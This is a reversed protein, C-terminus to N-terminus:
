LGGNAVAKALLEQLWAYQEAQILAQYGAASKLLTLKDAYQKANASTFLKSRQATLGFNQMAQQLHANGELELCYARPFIPMAGNALAQWFRATAFMGLRLHDPTLLIPMTWSQAILKCLGIQSLVRKNDTISKLWPETKGIACLQVDPHSTHQALEALREETLQNSPYLADYLKNSRRPTHKVWLGATLQYNLRLLGIADADYGSNMAILERIRAQVQVLAAGECFTSYCITIRDAPIGYTCLLEDLWTFFQPRPDQLLIYLPAQDHKAILELMQLTSPYPIGQVTRIHNLSLQGTTFFVDGPKFKYEDSYMQEAYDGVRSRGVSANLQIVPSDGLHKSLLQCAGLLDIANPDLEPDLQNGLTTGYYFIRM